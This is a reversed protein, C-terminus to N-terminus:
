TRTYIELLGKILTSRLSHGLPSDKRIEALAARVSYKRGDPGALVPKSAAPNDEVWEGLVRGIFEGQRIARELLLPLAEAKSGKHLIFTVDDEVLAGEQDPQVVASLVIVPVFADAKRIERLLTGGAQEEGLPSFPPIKYDLVIGGYQRQKLKRRASKLDVATDVAYGLLQLQDTIADRETEYDEVLLVRPGKAVSGKGTAAM